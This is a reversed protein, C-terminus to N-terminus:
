LASPYLSTPSFLPPFSVWGPLISFTVWVIYQRDCSLSDSSYVQHLSIFLPLSHITILKHALSFSELEGQGCKLVSVCVVFVCVRTDSAIEEKGRSFDRLM